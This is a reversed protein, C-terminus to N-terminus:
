SGHDEEQATRWFRLPDILIQRRVYSRWAWFLVIPIGMWPHNAVFSALLLAVGAAMGYGRFEFVPHPVASVYRWWGWASYGHAGLLWGHELRTRPPSFQLPLAYVWQPSFVILALGIRALSPLPGFFLILLQAVYLTLALAQMAPSFQRTTPWLRQRVGTLARCYHWFINAFHNLM